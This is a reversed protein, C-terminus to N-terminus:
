AGSGPALTINAAAYEQALLNRLTSDLGGILVAQTGPSVGAQDERGRLAAFDIAGEPLGLM